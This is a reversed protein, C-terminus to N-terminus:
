AITHHIYTHFYWSHFTQTHFSLYTPISSWGLIGLLSFGLHWYSWLGNFAVIMILLDLRSTLVYFFHSNGLICHPCCSIIWHDGYWEYFVGVSLILRIERWFISIGWHLPDLLTAVDWRFVSEMMAIGWHLTTYGLWCSSLSWAWHIDVFWDIEVGVVSFSFIEVHDMHIM